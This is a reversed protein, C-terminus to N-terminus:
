LATSILAQACEEARVNVLKSGLRGTLKVMKTLDSDVNYKNDVDKIGNDSM